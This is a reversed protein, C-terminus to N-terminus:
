GTPKLTGKISIFVSGGIEGGDMISSLCPNMIGIEGTRDKIKFSVEEINM